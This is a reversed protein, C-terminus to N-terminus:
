PALVSLQRIADLAILRMTIEYDGVRQTDQVNAAVNANVNNTGVDLQGLLAAPISLTGAQADVECRVTKADM